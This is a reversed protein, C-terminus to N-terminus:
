LRVRRIPKVIYQSLEEYAKFAYKLRQTQHFAIEFLMESWTLQGAEYYQYCSKVVPDERCSANVWDFGPKPELMRDYVKYRDESYYEHNM